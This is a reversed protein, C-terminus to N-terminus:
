NKAKRKIDISPFRMKRTERMDALTKMTSTDTATIDSIRDAGAAPADMVKIRHNALSIIDGTQLITSGVKVSNVFTGNASNLDVLVLADSIWLLLVHFKSAYENHIVIDALSSRGVTVKKDKFEYEELVEGHLSVILKPNSHKAATAHQYRNVDSVSAPM